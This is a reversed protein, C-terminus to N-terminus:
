FKYAINALVFLGPNKEDASETHRKNFLNDGSVTVTLNKTIDKWIKIGATAYSDLRAVTQRVENTYVYQSGKYLGYVSLNIYPNLYTIGGKIQNKPTRTLEQGELSRNKDFEDIYAKSYTYNLFTNLDKTIQYSSGLEAGYSKVKGINERRYLPRNDLSEGTPLYYLFDKGISYYLSSTLKLGKIPVYDTGIEFSDIKEPKLDPNAVKYIGWMIGSRCLDDLISARFGRGYSIYTSFEATWKYRASIRPTLASWSNDKLDGSIRNFPRITSVFRGDSFRAKDFRLSATINFRDQMFSMEDQLWLGLITLAGQNDARDPSTKYIDSADVKGKRIDAGLTILHSPHAQLSFMGDIGMDTRDSDVDFATYTTGRLSESLRRYNENQWFAKAQWSMNGSSGKYNLSYAWTDFHRHVGDKDRIKVGEGRKDDFYEVKFRISNTKDFDYGISLTGIGEEAFRKVTYPTRNAELTSIYGSSKLYHGSGKIYLGTDGSLRGSIEANGGYTGYTGYFFDAFGQLPKDPKSTIINIVGGMANNGYMSSAPGKFIEIREIDNINIRNFNVEGTDSKNVPVGDILVLTRAGENSLGRLTASAGLSYIGNGRIVNLGVVYQLIEDVKTSPNAFRKIDEKTI